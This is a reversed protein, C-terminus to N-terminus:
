SRLTAVRSAVTVPAAETVLAAGPFPIDKGYM